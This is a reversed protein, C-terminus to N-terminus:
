ENSNYHKKVEDPLNDFSVEEWSHVGSISLVELKLYADNKLERSTKFTIEKAKGLENYSTLTYKYKMDDSASLEEIKKNDIKTYYISKSNELYYGVAIFLVIFIIIGLIIALKEKVFNM